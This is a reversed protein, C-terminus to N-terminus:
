GRERRIRWRHVVRQGRVAWYADFCPVALCSHNPLVRVRAGVPLSGSVVGHEQSLSTLHLRESPRGERYAAGDEFLAGMGWRWDAGLHEPGPDKSLALAGADLVSRGAGAPSSVVTALVTLACDAVACSGIAAQTGDFLAYNGPRVETVGDLREAAATAPTSGVSVEAVEIGEGRIREAFDVAASREREAIRRAGDRDRVRYAQGSHTLLGAFALHASGALRRALATAAASRPDVGARGYGCDVKLWVAFGFRERELAAIAADSDAVVGLRVREALRRAEVVRGLIVPFAWTLDDVGAGAFARAEELTSVTLGGAGLALQRRAVEVCKHTKAHPRLRVGLAEARAAMRELNADLRDLDLVLAPTPLEDLTRPTTGPTPRHPDAGTSM